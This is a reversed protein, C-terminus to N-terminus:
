GILLENADSTKAKRWHGNFPHTGVAICGAGERWSLQPM